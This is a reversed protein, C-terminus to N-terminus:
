PVSLLTAAPLPCVLPYPPLKCHRCEISSEPHQISSGNTWVWGQNRIESKGDLLRSAQAVLAFSDPNNQLAATGAACAPPVGASCLLFECRYTAQFEGPLLFGLTTAVGPTLLVTPVGCDATFAM